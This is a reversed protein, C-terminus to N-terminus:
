TSQKVSRLAEKYIQYAELNLDRVDVHTLRGGRQVLKLIVTELNDLYPALREDCILDVVNMSNKKFLLADETAFDIWISIFTSLIEATTGQFLHRLTVEVMKKACKSHLQSNEVAFDIRHCIDFLSRGVGGKPVEQLDTLLIATTCHGAESTIRVLDEFFACFFDAASPQLDECDWIMLYFSVILTPLQLKKERVQRVIMPRFTHWLDYFRSASNPLSTLRVLVSKRKAYFDIEVGDSIILDIWYLRMLLPELMNAASEWKCLYWLFIARTDPAINNLGTAEVGRKLLEVDEYNGCCYAYELFTDKTPFSFLFTSDQGFHDVLAEVLEPRRDSYYHMVATRHRDDTEKLQMRSKEDGSINLLWKLAEPTGVSFFYNPGGSYHPHLPDSESVGGLKVDYILQLIAPDFPDRNLVTSLSYGAYIEEPRGVLKIISEISALPLDFLVDEWFFYSSTRLLQLLEERRPFWRPASSSVALELVPVIEHMDKEPVKMIVDIFDTAKIPQKLQSFNELKFFDLLGGDFKAYMLRLFPIEDDFFLDEHDSNPVFSLNLDVKSQNMVALWTKGFEFMNLGGNIRLGQISELNNINTIFYVFLEAIDSFIPPV